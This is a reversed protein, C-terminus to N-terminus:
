HYDTKRSVIKHAQAIAEEPTIQGQNLAELLSDLAPIEFDNAGMMAAEQKMAGVIMVAQERQIKNPTGEM